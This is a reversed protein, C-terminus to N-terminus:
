IYKEKFVYVRVYLVCTDCIIYSMRIIIIIIIYIIITKKRGIHRYLLDIASFFMFCNKIRTTNVILPPTYVWM